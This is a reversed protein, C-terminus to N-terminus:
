FGGSVLFVGGARGGPGLVPAMGAVFAPRRSRSSAAAAPQAHLRRWSVATTVQNVVLNVGYPILLSPAWFADPTRALKGVTYIAVWSVAVTSAMGILFGPVDGLVASGLGPVPLLGLLHAGTRRGSFTMSRPTTTLRPGSAGTTGGAPDGTTGGEGTGADTDGTGADAVVAVEVPPLAEAVAATVDLTPEFDLATFSSRVAAEASTGRDVTRTEAVMTLASTVSQLPAGGPLAGVMTLQYGGGDAAGVTPVLLRDASLGAALPALCTADGRCAELEFAREGLAARWADPDIVETHPILSAATGIWSGVQAAVDEPAGTVPAVAVKLFAQAEYAAVDVVSIEALQAYPVLTTGQPVEIRMGEATSELVMGVVIRGDALRLSRVEYDADQALAHGGSLATVLAILLMMRKSM